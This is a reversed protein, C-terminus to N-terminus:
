KKKNEVIQRTIQAVSPDDIMAWILDPNAAVWSDFQRAKVQEDTFKKGSKIEVQEQTLSLGEILKQMYLGTISREGSDFESFRQRPIRCRRMFEGINWGRNRAEDRLAPWYEDFTTTKKISAMIVFYVTMDM